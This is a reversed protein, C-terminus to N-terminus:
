SRNAPLAPEARTAALWSVTLLPHPYYWEHDGTYALLCGRRLLDPVEPAEPARHRPDDRVRELVRGHRTDLGAELEGRLGDLAARVTQGSAVSERSVAARIVVRRVLSLFDRPRGGSYVALRELEPEPIADEAHLDMTRRRWLELFFEFGQPDRDGTPSVVPVCRCAHTSFGPSGSVLSSPATLVTTSDLRALLSSELFLRRTTDLGEVRDLGDLFLSVPRGARELDRFLGNVADLLTRARPDQDRVRKPHLAGEVPMTVAQALQAIDARPAADEAFPAYADALADARPPSWAHGARRAARYVQLGVLLVVQWPELRNVAYPDGAGSACIEWPDVLVVFAQDARRQALRRLETSKGTGSPGLILHRREGFPLDLKAALDGTPGDPREVRWGPDGVPVRPDFREYIAGWDTM